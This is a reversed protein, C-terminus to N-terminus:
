LLDITTKYAIETLNSTTKWNFLEARKLGETIYNARIDPNNIMTVMSSELQSISYPDILIGANGVVEPISSLNSSIVATGCSMSELPPLGFGEYLSPYIFTTAANYLYPLDESHIYGTFIVNDNHKFEEYLQKGIDRREGGIVLCYEDNFSKYINLFALILQRVNKRESFGGLYLLFPKSIKYKTSVYDKCLTKNLPKYKKDSALPTVFIKNSDINFFKIIDKKSCESVTLISNTLDMLQPMEQFFKKIYGKGVTEPMIYPILDHITIIKKCSIKESLGIGNQPVHYLDINSRNIDTPIFSENFFKQSKSSTLVLDVNNKIYNNLKDKSWYLKYQNENSNILNLVLNETYTGIGTGSYWNIGRADLAIKM